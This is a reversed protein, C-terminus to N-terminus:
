ALEELLAKADSLDQTDFGETFGDYVPQLLERAEERKGQRQWLRALSMAARLELSKAEQGRAVALAAEMEAEAAGTGNTGIALLLEGKQRRLEADWGLQGTGAALSLGMGCLGIAAEHMGARRHLEALMWFVEPSSASADRGDDQELLALAALADDLAHPDDQRNLAAILRAGVVNALTQNRGALQDSLAAAKSRDGRLVALIAAHALTLEIM